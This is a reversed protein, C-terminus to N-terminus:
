YALGRYDYPNYFPRQSIYWASVDEATPMRRDIRLDSIM